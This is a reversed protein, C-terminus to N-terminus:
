GSVRLRVFLLRFLFSRSDKWEFDFPAKAKSEPCTWRAKRTPLLLTQPAPQRQPMEFEAIVEGRSLRSQVQVSVQGAAMLRGTLKLMERRNCMRTM